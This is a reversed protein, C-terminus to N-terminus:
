IRFRSNERFKRKFDMEFRSFNRYIFNNREEFGECGYKIEFKKLESLDKKFQDFNSLIQIENTDTQIQIQIL